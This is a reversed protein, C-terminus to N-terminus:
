KKYTIDIGYYDSMFKEAYTGDMLGFKTKPIIPKIEVSVEGRQKAENILTLQEMRAVKVASVDKYADYLTFLFILTGILVISLKIYRIFTASDKLKYYVIGFVIAAFCIVGFWSRAPFAPSVVMSYIAGLAGIIYVVGLLISDKKGKKAFKLCLIYLIVTILILIGLFLFLDHTASFINYVLKLGSVSAGGESARVFNGPALIMFAYGAISGVFGAIGWVPIKWKQIRYYIFFMVVIGIMGISVNESTWGAIIGLLFMGVAYLITKLPNKTYGSHLRYPVLFLLIIVTGWLYNLSGTVWLVTDAFAPQAIWTILFLSWFLSLSHTKSRGKAHLYMCFILLLFVATNLLDVVSSPLMLIIQLLTHVVARGGWTNYHTIQSCIVDELSSIRESTKYIFSYVYDDGHILSMRNFVFIVGFIIAVSAFWLLKILLKNDFIRDFRYINTRIRLLVDDVRVKSNALKSEM